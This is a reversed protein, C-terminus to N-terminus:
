RDDLFILKMDMEARFMFMNQNLKIETVQSHPLSHGVAVLGLNQVCSHGDGYGNDMQYIRAKLYGACHIVKYGQTTLGANRKALVCKMRLFFTREIEITQSAIPQQHSQPHGHHHHHVSHHFNAQLPNNPSGAILATPVTADGGGSTTPTSSFSSNTSKSSECHDFPQITQGPYVSPQLSLVRTMEDHDNIHIYDYVSNGTLEVQSLGLHTSATESIYMIKGDPAVVFIFGDLAQLLHSGLEKIPPVHSNTLLEKSGWAGGLGLNNHCM